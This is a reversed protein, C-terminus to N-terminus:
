YSQRYRRRAISPNLAAHTASAQRLISARHSSRSSKIPEPTTEWVSSVLTNVVIYRPYAQGPSLMREDVYMHLLYTLGRGARSVPRNTARAVTPDYLRLLPLM